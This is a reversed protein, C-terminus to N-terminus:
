VPARCRCTRRGIVTSGPPPSLSRDTRRSQDAEFPPASMARNVPGSNSAGQPGRWAISVVVALPQLVVVPTSPVGVFVNTGFNMTTRSGRDTSTDANPTSGDALQPSERLEEVAPERM